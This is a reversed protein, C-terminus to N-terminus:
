PFSYLFEIKFEIKEGFSSNSYVTLFAYYEKYSANYVLNVVGRVEGNYFAAIKDYSDESFTGDVKIRGVINMSYKFQTPDVTWSPEQALVRLKIQMKEDYGFDTQLFMNELYEGFILFSVMSKLYHVLFCSM